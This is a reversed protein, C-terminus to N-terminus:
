DLRAGSVLWKRWASMTRSSKSRALAGEQAESSEQSASICAATSACTMTTPLLLSRGLATLAASTM